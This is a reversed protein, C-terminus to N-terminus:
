SRIGTKGTLLKRTSLPVVAGGEFGSEVEDSTMRMGQLGRQQLLAIIGNEGLFHAAGVLVFYVGEGNEIFSHVQDAMRVNREDLLQEIFTKVLESDGAQEAFLTELGADDGSLWAVLLGALAPELEHDQDLSDSLLAIQVPLPQEFLLRLQADITELEIVDRNGTNELFHQEVGFEPLYGLAVLRTVVLQNLLFGPKLREIAANELGYDRLRELLREYIAAPLVESLRQEEPLRAYALTRKLLDEHTYAHINVEVALHDSKAYAMEYQRPLPYLSPKLVHISGALYVVTSGAGRYRWLYLPHPDPAVRALIERGTTVAENNLFTIECPSASSRRATECNRMALMSAALTHAQSHAMGFATEPQDPAVALAKPTPLGAYRETGPNMPQGLAPAAGYLSICALLFAPLRHEWLGWGFERRQLPLIM